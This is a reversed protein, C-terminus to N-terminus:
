CNRKGVTYIRSVPGNGDGYGTISRIMDHAKLNFSTISDMGITDVGPENVIGLILILDKYEPQSIFQTFIRLYYLAREANAIGMNGALFNVSGLRRLIHVDITTIQNCVFLKRVKWLPQSRYFPSVMRKTWTPIVFPSRALSVTKHDLFLM